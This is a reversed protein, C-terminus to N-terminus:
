WPTLFECLVHQMATEIQTAYSIQLIRSIGSNSSFRHWHWFESFPIWLLKCPLNRFGEILFSVQLDSHKTLSGLSCGVFLRLGPFFSLWCSISCCKGFTLQCVTIASASRLAGRTPFSVMSSPSNKWCTWCKHGCCSTLCITTRPPIVRCTPGQLTVGFPLTQILLNIQRVRTVM